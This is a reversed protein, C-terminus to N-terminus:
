NRDTQNGNDKGKMIQLRLQGPLFIHGSGHDFEVVITGDPLLHVIKGKGFETYVERGLHEANM